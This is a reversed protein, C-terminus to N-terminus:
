HSLLAQILQDELEIRAALTEGLGSLDQQLKGADGIEERGTYKDNFDITAETTKLIDPYLSTAVALVTNRREQEEAIRRYISFHGFAMYDILLQLFERLLDAASKNASYPKLGALRCFVVLMRQRDEVLKRVSTRTEGRREVMPSAPSSLFPYKKKVLLEPNM